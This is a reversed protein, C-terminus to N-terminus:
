CGPAPIMNTTPNLSLPLTSSLRNAVPPVFRLKLPNAWEVVAPMYYVSRPNRGESVTLGTLKKNPSGTTEHM